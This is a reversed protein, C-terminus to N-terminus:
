LDLCLVGWHLCVFENRSIERFKEEGLGVLYNGQGPITVLLIDDAEYYTPRAIYTDAHVPRDDVTVTAFDRVRILLHEARYFWWLSVLATPVVVLAIGVKFRVPM